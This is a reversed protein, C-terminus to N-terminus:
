KKLLLIYKVMAEADAQSLQAHATMPIAGWNGSGGKIIKEALMKVNDDTNEYKAAVDQYAPGINKEGVKHCTLCDSGAVLALGKSYDPNDSPKPAATETTTETTGEKKTEGGGCAVLLVAASLTCLIKRM